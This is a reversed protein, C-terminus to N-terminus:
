QYRLAVAPDGKAARRAPIYAALGATAAMVLVVLMLTISDAGPLAVQVGSPAQIQSQLLAIAAVSLLTGMTISASILITMEKMVLWVVQWRGAGLAMRIGLEMSRRSVAFRVVAYLGVSALALAVAGMGGLFAIGGRWLMLDTDILQQMTRAGLIPLTPDLSRVEREMAQLLAVDSGWTRAVFTSTEGGAQATPLYFLPQPGKGPELTRTDRVVGVIEVPIKAEKSQELGGYRFRRGVTNLSGFVRRAMTENVVAVIPRGPLDSDQFPRGYLLPVQLTEFYGPAGWAFEVPLPNGESGPAGGIEIERTQSSVLTAGSGAFVAQVGPISAIRRRLEQHIRQSESENYGAYRANTSVLAVGEVAFGPDQAQVSMVARILFATGM